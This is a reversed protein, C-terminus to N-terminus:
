AFISTTIKPMDLDYPIEEGEVYFLIIHRSNLGQEIVFKDDCELVMNIKNQMKFSAHM